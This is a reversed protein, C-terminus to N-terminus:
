LADTIESEMKQKHPFSALGIVDSRQKVVSEKSNFHELVTSGLSLMQFTNLVINPTYITNEAPKGHLVPYRSSCPHHNPTRLPNHM